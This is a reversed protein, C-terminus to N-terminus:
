VGGLHRTLLWAFAGLLLTVSPHDVLLMGAEGLLEFGRLLAARAAVQADWLVPDNSGLLDLVLATAAGAVLMVLLVSALVTVRDRWQFRVGNHRGSILVHAGRVLRSRWGRSRAQPPAAAHGDTDTSDDPTSGVFDDTLADFKSLDDDM